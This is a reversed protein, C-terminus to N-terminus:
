EWGRKQFILLGATGRCSAHETKAEKNRINYEEDELM